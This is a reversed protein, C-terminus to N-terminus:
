RGLTTYSSILKDAKTKDIELVAVDDRRRAFADDGKIGIEFWDAQKDGELRLVVKIAPADLGYTSVATPADIFEASDIAGITSLADSVQEQTADKTPATSKWTTTEAGEKDKTKSKTFTKTVGGAIVDFGTVEYTAVDLLRAARLNKLGKDLDDMIAPAVLGVIPGKAERAFYRGGDAKTGIELDITRGDTTTISVRRAPPVLGFKKLDAPSPTEAAISEMRLSELLGLFSEVTWRAARTAVPAAIKWDDEGKAGHAIRFMSKSKDFVEYSAVTDRSLKFLSRDRLDFASKGLTGELTSSVTILGPKGPVRAFIGSGAPVADGLEFEFPKPAGTAVISIAAKPDSLGYASLDSSNADELVDETELSQLADLLMGIESPDAPADLPAVISWADGTKEAHVMDGGRKKLTFSTVKLKDLGTFVKERKPAALGDEPPPKPAEKKSEVFYIYGFLGAALAVAAGTRAFSNM